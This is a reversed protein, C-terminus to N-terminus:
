RLKRLCTTGPYHDNDNISTTARSPCDEATPATAIVKAWASKSACPTEDLGGIILDGLKTSLTPPKRFCTGNSYKATTEQATDGPGACVIPHTPHTRRHSYHYDLFGRSDKCQSKKKYLGWVRGPGRSDKCSREEIEGEDPVYVCDGAILIGGGKGREAPHPRTLNRVCATRLDGLGTPTDVFGDTDRPCRTPGEGRDVLSLIQAGAGDAGCEVKTVTGASGGSSSVLTGGPVAAVDVCAGKAWPTSPTPSPSAVPSPATASATASTGTSAGAVPDDDGTVRMVVIVAVLLVIVGLLSGVVVRNLM